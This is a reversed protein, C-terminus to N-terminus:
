SLILHSSPTQKLPKGPDGFAYPHINELETAKIQEEITDDLSKEFGPPEADAEVGLRFLRVMGMASTTDTTMLDEGTGMEPASAFSDSRISMSNHGNKRLFTTIDPLSQSSIGEEAPVAPDDFGFVGVFPLAPV